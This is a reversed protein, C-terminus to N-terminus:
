NLLGEWKSGRSPRRAKEHGAKSASLRASPCIRLKGALAALISQTRNIATLQPNMVLNGTSKVVTVEGNFKERMQRILAATECFECLLPLDSVLFHGTPLTEIISIWIAVADKSLHEPPQHFEPSPRLAEAAKQAATKRGKRSATVSKKTPM